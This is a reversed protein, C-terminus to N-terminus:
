KAVGQQLHGAVRDATLHGRLLWRWCFLAILMASSAALIALGGAMSSASTIRTAVVLVFILGLYMTLFLAVNVWRAAGPATLRGDPDWHIAGCKIASLMEAPTIHHEEMLRHIKAAVRPPVRNSIKDMTSCPVTQTLRLGGEVLGIQLGRPAHNVFKQKPQHSTM